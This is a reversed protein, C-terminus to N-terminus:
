GGRDVGAAAIGVLRLLWCIPGAATGKNLSNRLEFYLLPQRGARKVADMVSFREGFAVAVIVSCPPAKGPSPEDRAASGWHPKM